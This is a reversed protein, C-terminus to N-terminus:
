PGPPAPQETLPLRCKPRVPNRTWSIIESAHSKNKNSWGSLLELTVSRAHKMSSRPRDRGESTAREHRARFLVSAEGSREGAVGVAVDTAPGFACFPSRVSPGAWNRVQSGTYRILVAQNM